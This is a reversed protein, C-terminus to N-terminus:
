PNKSNYNHGGAYDAVEWLGKPTGYVEYVRTDLKINPSAIRVIRGPLDPTHDGYRVGNPLILPGNKKSAAAKTPKPTQTPAPPPTQTPPVSTATSTVTATPPQTFTPLPTDSPQPSATASPSPPKPASTPTVVVLHAVQAIPPPPVNIRGHGLWLYTSVLVVIGLFTLSLPAVLSSKDPFSYRRLM